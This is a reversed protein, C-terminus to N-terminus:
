RPAAAFLRTMAVVGKGSDAAHSLYEDIGFAMETTRLLSYHNYPTSDVVHGPGHNTIVITPIQGGGFNAVSKPDYGCCGQQGAGGRSDKDDEDYTIVIATNEAGTWAASRMLKEVLVGVLADGRKILGALDRCDEPVDGGHSLGHMDNCQNPVIHAYNPLQNAAIDEDLQSFGVFHRALDRYPENHVKSFNVFGNHKAAYLENPLGKVSYRPTPWRPVLSGASPIDELYAKWTLGKETMQDMLSRASIAHDVYGPQSSKGCFEDVAGAKCYFADDDHIGFTDGGLIAVYNGESPHVEAYFQSAVGYRSALRHLVPTWEPHSMIQARGKNEEVIIFIHGYRPIREAGPAASAVVVLSVLAAATAAIRNM